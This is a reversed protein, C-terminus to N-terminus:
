QTVALWRDGGNARGSFWNRFNGTLDPAQAMLVSVPEVKDRFFGALNVAEMSKDGFLPELTEKIKHVIALFLDPRNAEVFKQDGDPHARTSSANRYLTLLDM